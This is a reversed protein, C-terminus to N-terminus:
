KNLGEFENMTESIKSQTSIVTKQSLETVGSVKIVENKIKEINTNMKKIAEEVNGALKRVEGAVVNFGRGHEGARAAEIAANLALINTQSSINQISKSLKSILDTQEKLSQIANMNEDSNDNVIKGLDLSLNKLQSVIEITKNERETIDTAIKLVANVEGVENLVPIYTAELWLLDGARDVRQIKEQFKKGKSLNDWLEIYDKSNQFEITCFQQHRMNIMADVTYGMTTAFNENVWIVKKDLNFEIMALNSELSALVFNGDLVQTSININTTM